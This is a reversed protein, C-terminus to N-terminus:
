FDISIYLLLNIYFFWSSISLLLLLNKFFVKRSEIKNLTWKSDVQDEIVRQNENDKLTFTVLYRKNSDLKDAPLPVSTALKKSNAHSFELSVKRPNGSLIKPLYFTGVDNKYPGFGLKPITHHNMMPVSLFPLVFCLSLSLFIIWYLVFLQKSTTFLKSYAACPIGTYAHAAHLCRHTKTTCYLAKECRSFDPSLRREAQPHILIFQFEIQITQSELRKSVRRHLAKSNQTFLIENVCCYCFFLFYREICKLYTKFTSHEQNRYAKSRRTCFYNLTRSHTNACNTNIWHEASKLAWTTWQNITTTLPM